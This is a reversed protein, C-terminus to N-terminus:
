KAPRLEIRRLDMVAVGPKKLPRVTVTIPGTPLEVKGLDVTRFDLFDKGAELPVEITRAKGFEIAITAGKSNPALSYELAVSFAGAKEVTAEWTVTDKVNTWYGINPPNQGKKELRANSGHVDADSALLALTGDPQQKPGAVPIPRVPADMKVAIVPVLPDPSTAPLNKLHVGDTEAAVGVEAGTALLRASAPHNEMPVVLDAGNPWVFVGLYLSGDAGVTARGWSIRGM